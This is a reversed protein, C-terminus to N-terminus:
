DERAILIAGVMAALLLVSAMEFPLVYNGLLVRGIAETTPQDVPTAALSWRTGLLTFAVVLLFSAAVLGAALKQAWQGPRTIEIQRPTLMIAFLMLIMIAGAYILLQVIALFDARLLLYVAAVGLFSAVLFMASHVLRRATVMGAAGGVAMLGFTYFGIAAFVDTM